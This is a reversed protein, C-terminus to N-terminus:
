PRGLWRKFSFQIYVERTNRNSSLVPIKCSQNDAFVRACMNNDEHTVGGGEGDSM